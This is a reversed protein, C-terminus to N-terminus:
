SRRRLQLQYTAGAADPYAAIVDFVKSNHDTLTDTGMNPETTLYSALVTAKVDTAHVADNTAIEYSSYNSFIAEITVDTDTSTMAGTTTDYTPDGGYTYTCTKVIDGAASFAASAANQITESLGM